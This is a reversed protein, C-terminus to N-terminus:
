SPPSRSYLVSQSLPSTSSTFCLIPLKLTFFILLYFCFSPNSSSSSSFLTASIEPMAHLFSEIALYISPSYVALSELFYLEMLYEVYVPIVVYVCVCVCVHVRVCVCVCNCNKCPRYQSPLDSFVMLTPVSHM